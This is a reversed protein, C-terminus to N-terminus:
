TEEEERELYRTGGRKLASNIYVCIIHRGREEDTERKM